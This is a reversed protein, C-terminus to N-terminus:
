SLRARNITDLSDSDGVTHLRPKPKRLFIAKMGTALHMDSCDLTRSVRGFKHTTWINAAVTQVRTARLGVLRVVSALGSKM